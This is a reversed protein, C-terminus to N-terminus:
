YKAKQFLRGQLSKIHGRMELTMLLSSATHLAIDCRAAIEELTTPETDPMANYVNLISGSLAEVLRPKEAIKAGRNRVWGLEAAVDSSDQYLIARSSKILANTGSFNEDDSRGPVAFVARNYSLAIDATVLSGGKSGSEAVITAHSLGAIIRNRSLFNGGRIISGPPMDSVVAGGSALIKSAIYYHSPPVIDEVWGAMVAVTPRRNEISAMHAAKDIGFALGSVVVLDDYSDALSRVINSTYNVGSVTAKRTGVISVWKGHNFDLDGRVYLIHPADPCESLLQPYNPTDKALIRIARSACIEIIHEARAFQGSDVLSCALSDSIGERRMDDASAAFVAEASGFIEILQRATKHGVKPTLTLAIDYIKAMNISHPVIIIYCFYFYNNFKYCNLYIKDRIHLIFIM